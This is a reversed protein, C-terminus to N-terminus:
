CWLQAPNWTPVQPCGPFGMTPFLFNGSPVSGPVLSVEFISGMEKRRTEPIPGCSNLKVRFIWSWLPLSVLLPRGHQQPHHPPKPYPVGEAPPLNRNLSSLPFWFFEFPYTVVGWGSKIPKDRPNEASLGGLNGSVSVKDHPSTVSPFGRHRKARMRWNCCGADWIKLPHEVVWCHIKVIIGDMPPM